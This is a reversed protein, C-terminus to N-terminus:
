PTVAARCRWVDFYETQGVLVHAASFARRMDEPYLPLLLVAPYGNVGSFPEEGKPVLWWAAVCGAIASTTAPPVAIGQLQHERVAPQDILTARNRFALLPRAHSLRETRGYAMEVRGDHAALFREVDGVDDIARREIMTSVFQVQQAAAVVLLVTICACAACSHVRPMALPARGLRVATCYAVIPVLPMLHYPGAGPKSAAIVVGCTGIALAWEVPTVRARPGAAVRAIMIAITLFLAWEANRRVLALQLGTRRSLDIWSLYGSVSADPLLVFPLLSTAIAIMAAVVLALRGHRQRLLVLVPLAYLAGTIKLNLLAGVAVGGLVAAAHGRLMVTAALAAGAAAVQLSDPRAWFSYNRFTLLFLAAAGSVVVARQWTTERRVALVTLVLGAVGAVAGVMKSVVISPGLAALAAGQILFTLPGYIHSYREASAIGHYLPQGSWAVWSVVAMTPEAHDFYHPGAAYWFAVAPYAVLAAAAVAVAFTTIGRRLISDIGGSLIASTGLLLVLLAAALLLPHAAGHPRILELYELM